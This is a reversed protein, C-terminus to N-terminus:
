SPNYNIEEQFFNKLDNLFREKDFEKVKAPYKMTNLRDIIADAVMKLGGEKDSKIFTAFDLKVDVGLTKYFHVEGLARDLMVRKDETYRPRKISPCM